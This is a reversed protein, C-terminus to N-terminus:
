CPRTPVTVASPLGQGLRAEATGGAGGVGSTVAAGGILWAPRGFNAGFDSILPSRSQSRVPISAGSSM